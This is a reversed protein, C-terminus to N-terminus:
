LPPGLPLRKELLFGESVQGSWIMLSAISPRACRVAAEIRRVSLGEAGGVRPAFGSGLEARVGRVGSTAAM